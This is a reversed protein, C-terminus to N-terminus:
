LWNCERYNKLLTSYLLLRRIVFLRVKDIIVCGIFLGSVFLLTFLIELAIRGEFLILLEDYEEMLFTEISPHCTILYVSVASTSFFYFERKVCM